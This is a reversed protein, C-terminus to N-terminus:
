IVRRPVRRAPRSVRTDGEPSALRRDLGTLLGIVEPSEFMRNRRANGVQKLVGAAVLHELAVNVSQRSRETMEVALGLTLVPVVPLAEIVRNVTADSRVSGMRERWDLRLEYLANDFSRLDSVARSAAKAFVLGM